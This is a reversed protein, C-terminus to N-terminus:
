HKLAHWLVVPWAPPKQSALENPGFQDLRRRAEPWTLGTPSSALRAFAAAPEAKAAEALDTFLASQTEQAPVPFEHPLMAAGVSSGGAAAVGEGDEGDGFERHNRPRSPFRTM